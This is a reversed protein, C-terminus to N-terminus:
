SGRFQITLILGLCLGEARPWFYELQGSSACWILFQEVTSLSCVPVFGKLLLRQFVFPFAGEPSECWISICGFREHALLLDQDNPDFNTDRPTGPTFVKAKHEGAGLNLLPLTVFQGNSYLSFGQQKVIPIAKPRASINLYTVGEHKLAKSYFLAAYCRFAPDVYWSTVHCRTAVAETRGIKTFILLIAGVITGDNELLYGYKPFGAPTVHEALRAFISRYFETRYGLGRALLYTVDPIDSNAIERARIKPRQSSNVGM